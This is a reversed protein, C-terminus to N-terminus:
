QLILDDNSKSVVNSLFSLIIQTGNKIGSKSKKLQSNSLKVNWTNYQTM